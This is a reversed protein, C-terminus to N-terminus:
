LLFMLMKIYIWRLFVIESKESESGTPVWELLKSKHVIEQGESLPVTIDMCFFCQFWHYNLSWWWLFHFFTVMKSHSENKTKQDSRKFSSKIVDRAHIMSLNSLFHVKSPFRGNTLFQSEWKISIEFYDGYVLLMSKLWKKCIIPTDKLSWFSIENTIEM